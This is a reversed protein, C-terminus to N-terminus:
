GVFGMTLLMFRLTSLHAVPQQVMSSSLKAEELNFVHDLSSDDDYDLNMIIRSADSQPPQIYNRVKRKLFKGLFMGAV